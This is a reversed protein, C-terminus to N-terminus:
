NREPNCRADLHLELTVARCRCEGGGTAPCRADHLEIRGVQGGGYRSAFDLLRERLEPPAPITLDPEIDFEMKM